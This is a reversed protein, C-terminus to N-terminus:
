FPHYCTFAKEILDTIKTLLDYYIQTYQFFLFRVIFLFSYIETLNNLNNPAHVPVTFPLYFDCKQHVKKFCASIQQLNLPGRSGEDWHSCLNLFKRERPLFFSFFFVPDLKVINILIHVAALERTCDWWYKVLFSKGATNGGQAPESRKLQGPSSLSWWVEWVLASSLTSVRDVYSLRMVFGSRLGDQCGLGQTALNYSHVGVGPQHCPTFNLQQINEIGKCAPVSGSLSCFLLSLTNQTFFRFNRTLACASPPFFMLKVLVFPTAGLPWGTDSSNNKSFLLNICLSTPVHSIKGFARSSYFSGVNLCFSARQSPWKCPLSLLSVGCVVFFQFPLLIIFEIKCFARLVNSPKMFLDIFNKLKQYGVVCDRRRPLM